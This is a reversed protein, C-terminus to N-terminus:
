LMPPLFCPVLSVTLLHFLSCTFCHFLSVTFLPSHVTCLSCPVTSLSRPVLLSPIQFRPKQILTNIKHHKTYDLSNSFLSNDLPNPSKCRKQPLKIGYPSSSNQPAIPFQRIPPNANTQYKDVTKLSRHCRLSTYPSPRFLRCSRSFFM